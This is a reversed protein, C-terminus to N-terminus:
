RERDDILREIKNTFVRVTEMDRVEDIIYRDYENFCEEWGEGNWTFVNCGCMRAEHNIGSYNDFSYFNYCGHLMKSLEKKTAPYWRSILLPNDAPVLSKWNTIPYFLYAKGIYYCAPNIRFVLGCDWDVPNISPLFLQGIVHKAAARAPGELDDSFWFAWEQDHYKEPGGPLKGPVNLVWRLTRNCTRDDTEPRIYFHYPEGDHVPMFPMWDPRTPHDFFVRHGLKTLLYGLYNIVFVGGSKDTFPQANNIRFHM